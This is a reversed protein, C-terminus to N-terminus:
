KGCNPLRGTPLAMKKKKKISTWVKTCYNFFAQELEWVHLVKDLFFLDIKTLEAIEEISYGRRLAEGYFLRDDQARVM